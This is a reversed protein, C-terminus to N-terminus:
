CLVPIGFSPSFFIFSNHSLSSTLGSPGSLRPLGGSENAGRYLRLYIALSNLAGFAAIGLATYPGLLVVKKSM